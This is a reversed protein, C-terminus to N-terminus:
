VEEPARRPPRAKWFYNHVDPGSAFRRFTMEVRQGVAVSAPDVDTLECRLRGGGDFDAVIAVMPPSPTFALRDVTFTAITAPLESMPEATMEDVTGCEVCVRSPPLSRMGCRQCRSAVFGYKWDVRRFAPPAAPSVPDPRRPPERDLRGTWTLFTSYDLDPCTSAIQDAISLAQRERHGVIEPTVRWLACYAGDALVVTCVVAGPEARDLTDALLTGLHASGTNGISATLDDVAAEPRVGLAATIAGTARSHLGTVILHDVDGAALGAAKFADAAAREALPQYVSEGFREEWVKSRSQGPLRWRDLFEQTTSAQGLLELLVPGPGFLLASAGDGGAAEDISGPLGSRTDALVVLTTETSDLATRIAAVGSRVAGTVDAAFTSSDLGLAAHIAAANTKDQYAPATTAFLLQSVSVGPPAARLALRAAEVAMTTTDEDYSAVSRMGRGGGTHLSDRIRSRDLRWYPVYGSYSLLGNM